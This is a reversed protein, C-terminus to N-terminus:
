LRDILKPLKKKFGEVANKEQKINVPRPIKLKSKLKYRVIKHVTYYSAEINYISKLWLQIEKYSDFGEPEQLEERLKQKIDESILSTRGSSKGIELLRELGGQRYLTLWRSITVKHRGILSALHGISEAQNTKLLYLVQIRQQKKPTKQKNLLKKLESKSETINIKIVGSM